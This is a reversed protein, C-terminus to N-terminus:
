TFAVESTAGDTIRILYRELTSGGPPTRTIGGRRLDGM